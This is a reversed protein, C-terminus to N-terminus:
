LINMKFFAHPGDMIQREISVRFFVKFRWKKIVTM